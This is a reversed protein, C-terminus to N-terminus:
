RTNTRVHLDIQEPQRVIVKLGGCLCLPDGGAQDRVRTRAHWSRAIRTTSIKALTYQRRGHDDVPMGCVFHQSDQAQAQYIEM